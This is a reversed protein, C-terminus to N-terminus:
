ESSNTRDEFSGGRARACPLCTHTIKHQSQYTALDPIRLQICQITITQCGFSERGKTNCAHWTGFVVFCAFEKGTSSFFPPGLDHYRLLFPGRKFVFFASLALATSKQQTKIMLSVGHRMQQYSFVSFLTAFRVGSLLPNKTGPDFLSSLFQFAFVPLTGIFCGFL